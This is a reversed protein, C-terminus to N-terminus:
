TDERTPPYILTTNGEPREHLAGERIGREIVSRVTHDGAGLVGATGARQRIARRTMPGSERLLRQIRAVVDLYVAAHRQARKADAQRELETPELVGGAERRLWLGEFPPAYNSKPIDLRIYRSAEEESVGWDAAHDRRMRQLTAVWRVGDVLATSGRVIEQGGGDRIGAQSIHSVGLVTAGTAERIAELAEVFRTADEEHNAQGGRFRSVPDIIILRLDPIQVAAAILRDVLHTRHVEGAAGTKTLLNDDAVRSVVHLRGGALARLEQDPAYHELLVRGRRHLEAEDDEAALYLVGGPSSIPMGLFPLGTGVSFGLQYVLYSKGAGGMSAVLGAVGLPLVDELLWQRAPPDAELFRSFRAEEPDFLPEPPSDPTPEIGVAAIPEVAREAHARIEEMVSNM